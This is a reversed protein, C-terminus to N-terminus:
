AKGQVVRVIPVTDLFYIGRRIPHDQQFLREFITRLAAVKDGSFQELRPLNEQSLPILFEKRGHYLEEPFYLEYVLGDIIQEFYHVILRDRALNLDKSRYFPQQTLYLIYEVLIEIATQQETTPLIIPLQSLFQKNASWWGDKFPTSIKPFYWALLKSNILGLLYQLSYQQYAPKLTLGGVDVNDLFYDGYPDYTAFLTEVLRPICLKIRNQIGLNQNRGFKYWENGKFKGKERSELQNKNALLYSAIEPYQNTIENFDILTVKNEVRYPFLIYQRKPLSLYRKVDTGSVIPILLEKELSVESNLAKSYLRLMPPTEAIFDLIFVKDASTQVGVFIDAMDGLKPLKSLREFVHADKGVVFNWENATIKDASITEAFAEGTSYWTALDDVQVFRFDPRAEKQLFFLCTYNTSGEFIQHGGFHIIQQLYKEKSILERLEVGYQANFFKHPLIFALQGLPKLLKLGQEVFIIYVDYNSTATQYNKQFYTKLTDPLGQVRIYPPNGIVMDFGDRVGFMLAPDFWACAEHEFPHWNLLQLAETQGTWQGLKQGMRQQMAEFNAKLSAKDAGYSILYDTAIAKLERIETTALSDSFEKSQSLGMLTNACIFKFELNPLAMIGRNAQSEDIQMDIVLSLFCRLKAIEVAIPQIDVGYICNQILFLKRGYDLQKNAFTREIMSEAEKRALPDLIQRAKELQRAKWKLNHPDLKQLLLLMKQL